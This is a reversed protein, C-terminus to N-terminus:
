VTPDPVLECYRTGESQYWRLVIGQAAVVTPSDLSPTRGYVAATLYRQEAATAALADSSRRHTM